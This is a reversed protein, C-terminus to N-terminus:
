KRVERKIEDRAKLEDRSAPLSHLAALAQQPLPDRVFSVFVGAKACKDHFDRHWENAAEETAETHCFQPLVGRKSISYVTIKHTM